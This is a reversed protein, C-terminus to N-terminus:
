KELRIKMAKIIGWSLLTLVGLASTSEPVSQPSIEQSFPRMKFSGTRDNFALQIPFATEETSGFLSDIGTIKFNSIGSGFLSTFDVSDGAGFEGLIRDGVSVTFRNDSGVPFDLIETFLTNDLAQFEFGYPTHPDYWRCGPVDRFVQWNGEKANPLIPNQQTGGPREKGVGGGGSSGVVYPFDAEDDFVAVNLEYNGRDEGRRGGNAARVNLDITGNSPVIGTLASAFGDGLQSNDNDYYWAGNEGYTELLTNPNCQNGPIDNNIYAYYKAGPSLEKLQFADKEYGSFLSGPLKKFTNFPIHEWGWRVGDYINVTRQQSGPTTVEEVLYTEAYFYIKRDLKFDPVWPADYFSNPGSTGPYFPNDQFLIIDLEDREVVDYNDIFRQIWRIQNGSPDGQQPTYTLNLVAGAGGTKLPTECHGDPFPFTPTCPFYNNVDFDGKLGGVPVFKWDPEPFQYKLLSLLKDTGGPKVEGVRGFNLVSRPDYFPWAQLQILGLKQNISDEYPMIVPRGLPSNVTVAFSSQSQLTALLTTALLVLSYQRSLM